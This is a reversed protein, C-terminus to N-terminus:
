NLNNLKKNLDDLKRIIIWNQKVLASLYGIKAQEEAKAFSLAMGTKILGLGFLDDSIQKIIVLDNEDVNNLKYKNIYKTVKKSDIKVESDQKDEIIGGEAITDMEDPTFRKYRYTMWINSEKKKTSNMFIQDNEIILETSCDENQCMYIKKKKKEIYVTNGRCIPCRVSENFM